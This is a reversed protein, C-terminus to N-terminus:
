PSAGLNFLPSLHELYSLTQQLVREKAVSVMTKVRSFAGILRRESWAPSSSRARPSRLV